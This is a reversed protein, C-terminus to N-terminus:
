LFSQVLWTTQLISEHVWKNPPSSATKPFCKGTEQLTYLIDSIRDINKVKNLMHSCCHPRKSGTSCFSTTCQEWAPLCSEPHRPNYISGRRETEPSSVDASPREPGVSLRTQTTTGLRDAPKQCLDRAWDDSKSGRCDHQWRAWHDTLKLWQYLTKTSPYAYTWHYCM